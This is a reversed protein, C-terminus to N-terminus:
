FLYNVSIFYRDSSSAWSLHFRSGISTTIVFSGFKASLSKRDYLDKMFFQLGSIVDELGARQEPIKILVNVEQNKDFDILIFSHFLTTLDADTRGLLWIPHSTCAIM